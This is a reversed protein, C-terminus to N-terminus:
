GVSRKRLRDNFTNRQLGLLRAAEAKNDNATLLAARLWTAEYHDLHSDLGALLPLRAQLEAINWDDPADPAGTGLSESARRAAQEPTAGANLHALAHYAARQLDRFNGPLPHQALLDLLVPHDLLHEWGPPDVRATTRAKRVVRNWFAPLDERCARLPPVQLTIAAVRDFFDEDLRDGGLEEIPRNTATLLRFDSRLLTKADGLRHFGRGEVAHILLRQTARDLDGIEDLFLTDRDALSLLGERDDDAGTFAGAVHGFLASQAL